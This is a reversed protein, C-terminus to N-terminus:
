AAAPTQVATGNQVAAKRGLNILQLPAMNALDVPKTPAAAPPPAAPAPAGGTAQNTIGHTVQAQLQQIQLNLPAVAAAVAGAVITAIDPAAPVPAQNTPAVPAAPAAPAPAQNTPAASAAPAAPAAPTAAPAAGGAAPTETAANMLPSPSIKMPSSESPQAARAANSVRSMDFLALVQAPAKTLMSRNTPQLTGARAALNALPEIVTDAFGNDVATQGDMWTEAEIMSRIEEPTKGTRSAYLNVLTSNMSDLMDAYRRMAESGGCVCGTCGHIMMWSNSPIRIEDCALAPYTAASACIGDVVCVKKAPHRMLLNHIAMGTFVDGGESFISLQIKKVGGLAELEREFDALTGAGETEIEEGRWYDYATRKMGIIGRLKIEAYGQEALNTIEFWSQTPTPAIFRKPPKPM